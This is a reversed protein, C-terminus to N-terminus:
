NCVLFAYFPIFISNCPVNHDDIGTCTKGMIIWLLSVSFFLLECSMTLKHDPNIVM